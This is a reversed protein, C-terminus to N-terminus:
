EWLDGSEELRQSIGLRFDLPKHVIHILHTRGGEREEWLSASTLWLTELVAGDRISFPQLQKVLKAFCAASM